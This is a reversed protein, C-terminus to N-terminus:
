RYDLFEKKLEKLSDEATRIVGFSYDGEIINKLIKESKEIEMNQSYILAIGIQNLAYNDKFDDALTQNQKELKEIISLEINGLKSLLDIIQPIYEEKFDPNTDLTKIYYQLALNYQKKRHYYLGNLYDTWKSDQIKEISDKAKSFSYDDLYIRTLEKLLVQKDADTIEPSEMDKELLKIKERISKGELNRLITKAVDSNKNIEPENNKKTNDLVLTSNTKSDTKNLADLAHVQYNIKKRLIGSLDYVFFSVLSNNNGMLFLFFGKDPNSKTNLFKLDGSISKLVIFANRSDLNISFEEGQPIKLTTTSSNVAPPKKTNTQKNVKTKNVTNTKVIVQTKEAKLGSEELIQNISILEAKNLNKALVLHEQTCSISLLSIILM